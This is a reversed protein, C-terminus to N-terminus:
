SGRSNAKSRRWARWRTPPPLVISTTSPSPWPAPWRRSSVADVGELRSHRVWLLVLVRAQLMPRITRM